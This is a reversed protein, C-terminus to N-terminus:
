VREWRWEGENGEEKWRGERWQRWKGTRERQPPDWGPPDWGTRNQAAHAWRGRRKWGVGTTRQEEGDREEEV